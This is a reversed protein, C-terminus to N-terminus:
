NTNWKSGPPSYNEKKKKKEKFNGPQVIVKELKLVQM